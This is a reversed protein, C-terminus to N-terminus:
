AFQKYALLKPQRYNTYRNPQIKPYITPISISGHIKIKHFALIVIKRHVQTKIRNSKTTAPINLAIVTQTLMFFGNLIAAVIEGM